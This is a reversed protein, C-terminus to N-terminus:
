RKAFEDAFPCTAFHAIHGAETDFVPEAGDLELPKAPDVSELNVPINRMGRTVMWVVPAMCKRCHGRATSPIPATKAPQREPM